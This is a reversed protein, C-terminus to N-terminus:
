AARRFEDRHERVLNRINAAVRLPCEEQAIERFMNEPRDRLALGTMQLMDRQGGGQLFPATDVLVSIGHCDIEIRFQFGQPFFSGAHSCAV